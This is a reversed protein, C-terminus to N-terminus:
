LGLVKNKARRLRGPHDSRRRADGQVEGAEGGSGRGGAGGSRAAPPAAAAPPPQQLHRRSSCGRAPARRGHRHRDPRGRRRERRGGRLRRRGIGAPQLQRACGVACRRAARQPAAGPTRTTSSRSSRPPRDASRPRHEVPLEARGRGVPEPRLRDLGAPDQHHPQGQSPDNTYLRSRRRSRASWRTSCSAAADNDIDTFDFVKGPELYTAPVWNKVFLIPDVIKLTYTGRTVAGVQANM